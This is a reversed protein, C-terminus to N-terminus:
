TRKKKSAKRQKQPTNELTAKQTSNYSKKIQKKGEKNQTKEKEKKEKKKKKRKIGIQPRAISPFNAHVLPHETLPEKTLAIVASTPKLETM